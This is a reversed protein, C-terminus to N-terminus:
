NGDQQMIYREVNSQDVRRLTPNSYDSVQKGQIMSNLLEVTKYGTEYFDPSVSGYIVGRRIYDLTQPMAGYGIVKVKGVGGNDLLSQAVAPTSKEDMCVIVNPPHDGKLLDQVINEAEFKESDLTIIETIEFNAAGNTGDILGQIMTNQQQRDDMESGNLLVAVRANEGAAEMVMEGAMVGSGFYSSGVIPVDQLIKNGSEYAVIQVGEAKVEEVIEETQEMNLPKLAIGDVQAYAGSELIRQLEQDTMLSQTVFEVYINYEEGASLAGERFRQWSNEGIDQVIVQIHGSYEVNSQKQEYEVVPLFIFFVYLMTIVIAITLFFIFIWKIM